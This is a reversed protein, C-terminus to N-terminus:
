SHNKAPSPALLGALAGVSASGLATLIDPVTGQSKTIFIAGLVSTFVVAGLSSVVIRYIWVDSELPPIEKTVLAVLSQLSKIPNQRIEEALAPNTVVRRLLEEASRISNGM